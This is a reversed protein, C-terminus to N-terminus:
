AREDRITELDPDEFAFDAMAPDLRLALKLRRRAEELHGEVAAYCALNYHIVPENSHLELARELIEEAAKVSDARRTAWAWWVWYEPVEEMFDTLDRAVRAAKEWDEAALLVKARAAVVEPHSRLRPQLEDFVEAADQPMGLELYGAVQVLTLELEETM